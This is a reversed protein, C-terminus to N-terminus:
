NEHIVEWRDYRGLSDRRAQSTEGCKTCWRILHGWYGHENPPVITLNFDHEHPNLLGIMVPKEENMM